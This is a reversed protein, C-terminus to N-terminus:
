NTAIDGGGIIDESVKSTTDLYLAGDVIKWAPGVPEGGYKHWGATSQGDFLMQWGDAKEQPTLTDITMIITTSTSDPSTTKDGSNNCAAFLGILSLYALVKKM